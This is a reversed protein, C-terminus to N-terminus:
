NLNWMEFSYRPNRRGLCRNKKGIYFEEFWELLPILEDPFEKTLEDATMDLDCLPIFALANIAKITVCVNAVYNYKVMFTPNNDFIAEKIFEVEHHVAWLQLRRECVVCKKFEKLITLLDDIVIVCDVSLRTRTNLQIFEHSNNYNYEILCTAGNGCFYKTTTPGNTSGGVSIYESIIYNSFIINRESAFHGFIYNFKLIYCMEDYTYCFFNARIFEYESPINTLKLDVILPRYKIRRMISSGSDVRNNFWNLKVKWDIKSHMNNESTYRDFHMMVVTNFSLLDTHYVTDEWTFRDLLLINVFNFGLNMEPAIISIPLRFNEKEEQTLESTNEEDNDVEWAAAEEEQAIAEEEVAEEARQRVFEVGHLYILDDMNLLPVEGNRARWSSPILFDVIALRMVFILVCYAM